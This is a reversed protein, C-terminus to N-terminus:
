ITEKLSYTKIDQNTVINLRADLRDLEDYYLLLHETTLKDNYQFMKVYKTVYYEKQQTHFMACIMNDISKNKSNNEHIVGNNENNEYVKIYEKKDIFYHEYIWLDSFAKFFELDLGSLELFADYGLIDMEDTETIEIKIVQKNPYYDWHPQIRHKSGVIPPFMEEFLAPNHIKALVYYRPTNWKIKKKNFPKVLSSLLSLSLAPNIIFFGTFFGTFFGAIFFRM